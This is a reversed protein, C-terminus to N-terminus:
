RCPFREGGGSHSVLTSVSPSARKSDPQCTWCMEAYLQRNGNCRVVVVSISGLHARAGRDVEQNDVVTLFTPLQGPLRTSAATAAHLAASCHNSIPKPDLHRAETSVELVGGLESM